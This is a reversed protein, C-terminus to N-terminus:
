LTITVELSVQTLPDMKFIIGTPPQWTPQGDAIPGSGQWMVDGMLSSLAEALSSM